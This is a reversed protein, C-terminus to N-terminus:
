NPQDWQTERQKTETAERMRHLEEWITKPDIPWITFDERKTLADNCNSCTLVRFNSFTSSHSIFVGSRTIKTLTSSQEIHCGLPHSVIKGETFQVVRRTSEVFAPFDTVYLRGPYLNDGSLLLATRRDYFMMHANDHGPTQIVDLVGSHM